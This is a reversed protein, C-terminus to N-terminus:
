LAIFIGPRIICFTFSLNREFDRDPKGPLATVRHIRNFEYHVGTSDDREHAHSVADASPM